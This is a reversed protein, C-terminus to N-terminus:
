QPNAMNNNSGYCYVSSIKLFLFDKLKQLWDLLHIFLCPNLLSIHIQMLNCAHM